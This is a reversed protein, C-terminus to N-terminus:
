IKDRVRVIAKQLEMIASVLLRIDTHFDESAGYGLDYFTQLHHISWDLNDVARQLEVKARHRVTVM